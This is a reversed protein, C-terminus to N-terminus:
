GFTFVFVEVGADLFEIEFLRDASNGPQRILQYMRQDSAMGNGQSDADVGHADGPPRGDLFVRFRVSTGRAMPGMVLHLDRARFRYTIRGNASNLVTAERGVTWEGALAWHNLKLREPADYLHRKDV